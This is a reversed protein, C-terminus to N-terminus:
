GPNSAIREISPLKTVCHADLLGSILVDYNCYFAGSRKNSNHGSDDSNCVPREHRIEIYVIVRLVVETPVVLALSPRQSPIADWFAGSGFHRKPGLVGKAVNRLHATGSILQMEPNHALAEARVFYALFCLPKLGQHYRM